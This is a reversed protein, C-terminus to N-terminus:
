TSTHGHYSYLYLAQREESWGVDIYPDNVEPAEDMPEVTWLLNGDGDYGQVNRNTLFGSKSFLVIHVGNHVAYHWPYAEADGDLKIDRGGIQLQSRNLKKFTPQPNNLM